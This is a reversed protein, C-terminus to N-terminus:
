FAWDSLLERTGAGGAAARTRVVADAIVIRAIVRLGGEALPRWDTSAATALQATIRLLDRAWPRDADVGLGKQTDAM